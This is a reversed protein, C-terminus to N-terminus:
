DAREKGLQLISEISSGHHIVEGGGGGKTGFAGTISRGGNRMNGHHSVHRVEEPLDVKSKM